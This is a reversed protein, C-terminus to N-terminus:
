AGNPPGGGPGTGGSALYRGATTLWLRAKDHLDRLAAALALFRAGAAVPLVAAMGPGPGGGPGALRDRGRHDNM